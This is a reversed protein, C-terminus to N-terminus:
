SYYKVHNLQSQNIFFNNFDGTHTQMYILRDQKSKKFQIEMEHKALQHLGKLWNNMRKFYGVMLHPHQVKPLRPIGNKYKYQSAMEQYIAHQEKHDIIDM